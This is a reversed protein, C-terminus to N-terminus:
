LIDRQIDDDSVVVVVCDGRDVNEGEVDEVEAAAKRACCLSFIRLLSSLISINTKFIGVIARIIRM